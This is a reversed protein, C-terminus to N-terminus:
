DWDDIEDGDSMETEGWDIQQHQEINRQYRRLKDTIKNIGSLKVDSIFADIERDDTEMTRLSPVIQMLRSVSGELEEHKNTADIYKFNPLKYGNNEIIPSGSEEVALIWNYFTHIEEILGEIESEQSKSSLNDISANHSDNEAIDVIGDTRDPQEQQHDTQININSVLDDLVLGDYTHENTYVPNETIQREVVDIIGVIYEPNIAYERTLSTKMDGDKTPRYEWIPKAEGQVSICENPVAILVLGKYDRHPWNMMKSFENYEPTEEYGTQCVATSTISPTKAEFGTQMAMNAIEIDTGHIYLTSNQESLKKRINEFQSIFDDGFYERAVDESESVLTEITIPQKKLTSLVQNATNAIRSVVEKSSQEKASRTYYGQEIYYIAEKVLDTDYIHKLTEKTEINM